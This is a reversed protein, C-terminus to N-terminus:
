GVFILARWLGLPGSSSSFLAIKQDNEEYLSRCLRERDYGGLRIVARWVKLCNLLQGYFKPPKFDMARELYFSEIEKMFAAQDEPTGDDGEAM